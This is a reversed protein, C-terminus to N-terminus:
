PAEYAGMDAAGGSVRPFGIGRQDTALGLPNSGTNIAPSGPLLAHTRTTGGNFALAGVVPDAGVFTGPGSIVIQTLSCTTCPKQILSNFANIGFAPILTTNVAVDGGTSSNNALISSVLKLTPPTTNSASVPYTAGSSMVIGGTRSPAASNGNVTTNDLELALNGFAVMAGGTAASGNGSITSNIIRVAVADSQGQRTVPSNHLHLGGSRTADSLTIDNATNEAIESREIRLSKALGDFGGGHYVKGVVPPNPADVHNDVIITDVIVIDARSWSRIAGGLGNLAIAQSSNGRFESGAITVSVPTVSPIDTLANLPGLCRETVYLGGGVAGDASTLFLDTAVNNVFQSNSISLLQGPYQIVFMVGGGSRAKSNDITMSDLALSHETFIAGGTSDL